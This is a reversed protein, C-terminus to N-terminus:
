CSGEWIPTCHALLYTVPLEACRLCVHISGAHSEGPVRSSACGGTAASGNDSAARQDAHNRQASGAGWRVSRAAYGHQGSGRQLRHEGTRSRASSRGLVGGREVAGALATVRLYRAFPLCPDGTAGHIDLRADRTSGSIRHFRNAPCSSDVLKRLLM